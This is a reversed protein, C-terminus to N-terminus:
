WTSEQGDQLVRVTRDPDYPSLIAAQEFTCTGGLSAPHLRNGEIKTPRGAHAEVVLGTVMDSVAMTTAYFQPLGPVLDEPRRAYPLIKEEPRRVCGTGFGALAVSAGMLSMFTRRSVPDTLESAGEPFERHLFDRFEPTSA